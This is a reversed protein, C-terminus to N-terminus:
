YPIGVFSRWKYNRALNDHNENALMIMGSTVSWMQRGALREPECRKLYVVSSKGTAKKHKQITWCRDHHDASRITLFYLDTMTQNEPLMNFEKEDFSLDAMNNHHYEATFNM